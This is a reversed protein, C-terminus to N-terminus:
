ISELNATTCYSQKMIYYFFKRASQYNEFTKERTQRYYKYTVQYMARISKLPLM